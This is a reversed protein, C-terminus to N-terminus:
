FSIKTESSHFSRSAWGVSTGTDRSIMASNSRRISCKRCCGSCNVVQSATLSRIKPERGHGLQNKKEFRVEVDLGGKLAVFIKLRPTTLNKQPLQVGGKPKQASVRLNSRNIRARIPSHENAVKGVANEVLHLGAPDDNRRNNIESLIWPSDPPLQKPGFVGSQHREAQESFCLTSNLAL